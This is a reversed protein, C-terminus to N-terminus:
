VVNHGTRLLAPDIEVRVDIRFGEKEVIDNVWMKELTARYIRRPADGLFDKAPRLKKGVRSAVLQHARSVRGADSLEEAQAQIYVGQGAGTGEPITSDYIALFIYPNNQINKSHQSKRDSMWFFNYDSDFASYVPSNWPRGGAEACVTAITIYQIKQITRRACEVYNLSM